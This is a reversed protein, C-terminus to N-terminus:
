NCPLNDILKTFSDLNELVVVNESTQIGQILVQYGTVFITKGDCVKQLDKLYQHVSQKTFGESIITLVYDTSFISCAEALDPLSTNQGLYLTKFGRKKILYQLFLLSLEQSEGEPLYLTFGANCSKNTSLADIAAILKQRVLNSIFNEQVPHISGTIWLLSLKDLFPYIVEMMTREFGLNQLNAAIITEFKAEDLEMMSITLADIQVSDEFSGKSLDSVAEAIEEESMSAIKSIKLGNKNLLSINLLHKLDDDEYFRINTPTRKPHIIHYRQEWIRLTHAKIGSIMELDKISYVAM